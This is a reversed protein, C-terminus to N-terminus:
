QHSVVQQISPNAVRPRQVVAILAALRNRQRHGVAIVPSEAFTAFASGIRRAVDGDLQEPALGRVDYAKFITSLDM